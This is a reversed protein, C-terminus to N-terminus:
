KTALALFIQLGVSVEGKRTEDTIPEQSRSGEFEGKMGTRTGRGEDRRRKGGLADEVASRALERYQKMRGCVARM